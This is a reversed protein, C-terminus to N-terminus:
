PMRRLKHVRHRLTASIWRAGCHHGMNITLGCATQVILGDRHRQHEPLCCQIFREIRYRYKLGDTRAAHTYPNAQRNKVYSVVQDFRTLEQVRLHVKEDIVVPGGARCKPCTPETKWRPQAM